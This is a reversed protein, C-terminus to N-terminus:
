STPFFGRCLLLLLQISSHSYTLFGVRYVGLDTFFSSFSTSWAGSCLNGQLRHRHGHHLLSHWQLVPLVMTFCIDVQLRHLVGFCTSAWLLRHSAWVPTPDQCFRHVQPFLSACAPAPKSAPSTVRCPVWVPATQEQFVAGWSHVWVPVTQSCSCSIPLVWMPSTQPPSYGM